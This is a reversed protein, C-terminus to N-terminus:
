ALAGEAADSLLGVSGLGCAAPRREDRVAGASRGGVAPVVSLHRQARTLATYVLPRTLMGGAEPPMVAVVAPWESGQARHVTIAWGHLLDALASAPGDGARRHVRRGARRRGLRSSSASRATPSAPPRRLYPQRDRRGPRRRRLRLGRRHGPQASGQARPEAGRHRGPRPAGADRGPSDGSRSGFVRPISDTVVQVVRRAAEASGRAPVVVVEHAPDDVALCSGARVARRWGPSPAARTQRYLRQLETVPVIGCDILDGLM